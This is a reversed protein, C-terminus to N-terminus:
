PRFHQPAEQLDRSVPNEGREKLAPVVQDVTEVQSDLNVKLELVVPGEQVEQDELRDQLDWPVWTEKRVQGELCVM